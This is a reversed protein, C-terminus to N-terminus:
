IRYWHVLSYLSCASISIDHQPFQIVPLATYGKFVCYKVGCEKEVM